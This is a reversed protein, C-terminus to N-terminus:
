VDAFSNVVLGYVEVPLSGRNFYKYVVRVSVVPCITSDVFRVVDDTYYFLRKYHRGLKDRTTVEYYYHTRGFSLAVSNSLRQYCSHRVSVLKEALRSVFRSNFVNAM